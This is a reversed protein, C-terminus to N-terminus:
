IKIFNWVETGSVQDLVSDLVSTKWSIFKVFNKLSGKKVFCGQIVAEASEETRVLTVSKENTEKNKKGIIALITFNFSM